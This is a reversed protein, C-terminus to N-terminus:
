FLSLQESSTPLEVVVGAAAAGNVAARAVVAEAEALVEPIRRFDEAFVQKLRPDRLAAAPHYLAYATLDGHRSTRGHLM